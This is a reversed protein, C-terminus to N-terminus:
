NKNKETKWYWRPFAISIAILAPTSINSYLTNITYYSSMSVSHLLVIRVAAQSINLVGWAISLIIWTKKYKATMKFEEPLNRLYSQEVIVQLLIFSYRIYNYAAESVKYDKIEELNKLTEECWKIKAEEAHKGYSLTTTWLVLTKKSVEQNKTKILNEINSYQSIREESEKKIRQLKEILNAAPINESWFIKLLLESRVPESEIPALLWEELEVRGKETISYM